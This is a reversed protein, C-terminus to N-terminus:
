HVDYKLLKAIHSIILVNNLRNFHTGVALKKWSGNWPIGPMGFMWYNCLMCAFVVTSVEDLENALLEVPHMVLQSTAAQFKSRFKHSNEIIWNLSAEGWDYVTKWNYTGGLISKRKMSGNQSNLVWYFRLWANGSSIKSCFTGIKVFVAFRYQFIEM